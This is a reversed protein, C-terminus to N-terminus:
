VRAAYSPVSIQAQTEAILYYNSNQTYQAYQTTSGPTYAVSLVPTPAWYQPIYNPTPLFGQNAGSNVYSAKSYRKGMSNYLYDADEVYTRGNMNGLTAFTQGKSLNTNKFNKLTTYTNTAPDYKGLWYDFLVEAGKDVANYRAGCLYVKGAYSFIFTRDASVSPFGTMKPLASWTNTAGTWKFALNKYYHSTPVNSIEQYHAGFTYVNGDGPACMLVNMTNLADPYAAKATKTFSSTSMDTEEFTTYMLQSHSQVGGSSNYVGGGLTYLKNNVYDFAYSAGTYNNTNLDAYTMDNTKVRKGAYYANTSVDFTPYSWVYDVGGVNRCTLTNTLQTAAVTPVTPTPNYSTNSILGSSVVANSNAPWSIYQNDSVFVIKAFAKSPNFNFTTSFDPSVFSSDIISGDGDLVNIYTVNSPAGNSFTLSYIGANVLMGVNLIFIQQTVATSTSPAKFTLNGGLAPLSNKSVLDLTVAM